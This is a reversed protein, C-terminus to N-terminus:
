MAVLRLISEFAIGRAKFSSARGQSLKSIRSWTERRSGEYFCGRPLVEAASLDSIGGFIYVRRAHACNEREQLCWEVLAM